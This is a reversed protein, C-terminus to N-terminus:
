SRIWGDIAAVGYIRNSRLQRITVSTMGGLAIIHPTQGKTLLGLRVVGLSMVGPHSRTAFVPSVFVADAKSRRAAQIAGPHHAAATLLGNKRHRQRPRKMLGEPWHVGDAGCRQALRADGAILVTLRKQRCLTVLHQAWAQRNLQQYNRLVVGTGRPLRKIIEEERGQLREDTFFWLRPLRQGRRQRTFPLTISLLM